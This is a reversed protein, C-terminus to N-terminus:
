LYAKRAKSSEDMATKKDDASADKAKKTAADAAEKAAKVEPNGYGSQSRRPVKEYGEPSVGPVDPMGGKRGDAKDGGKEPKDGKPAAAPPPTGASSDAPADAAILGASALLTLLFLQSKMPTTVKFIVDLITSLKV